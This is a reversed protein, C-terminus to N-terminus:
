AVTIHEGLQSVVFSYEFAAEDLYKYRDSASFHGASMDIKCLIPVEPNTRHDRLKQVWKVPEWYAVRPDNLGGTVLMAPYAQEKVGDYPSYSMMYDYYKEENPNGWEQWETVTLPISADAMTNCVDVFPVDAVAVKFLQPAMNVVAGILLGGASRGCIALSAAKTAKISCLHEACAIFDTFTNRKTLFKGYDEYWERGMEGGGRIHGIAFVMGRDLYSLRTFSFNPEICAGYSGYGYLMMAAETGLIGSPYIAKSYVMSIPISTGDAAMADVRTCEYNSPLYGPVEKEKLLTRAGTDMNYDFTSSPSVMSEYVYRLVNTDFFVDCRTHCSYVDEAHEMQTLNETRQDRIWIQKLGNERGSIVLHNSFCSVYSLSRKADYPMVDVWSAVGPSDVPCAMLKKNKAGDLNTVIYFKDGHHEIRYLVDEMRPTIIKLEAAAHAETGQVGELDIVHIESNTKGGVHMALFRESDSKGIGMWFMEDEEHYLCVDSSQPTGMQHRWLKYPRHESDQTTYYITSADAGWCMDGSTETIVDEIAKGGEEMQLFRIEYTEYGSFDAAYAIVKHDNSPSVDGVDCYDKGEAVANIDLIIQQDSPAPGKLLEDPSHASKSRCHISYSKGKETRTYYYYPGHKYPVQADTEKMHSIFEEYITSKLDALGETQAETYKNEHEIHKLVARNKRSDDRLWYYDDTHEKPPNMPRAGRNEGPVSGFKLTHAIKKARP